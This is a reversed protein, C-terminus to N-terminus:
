IIREGYRPKRPGEDKREKLSEIESELTSGVEKKEIFYHAQQMFAYGKIAFKDVYHKTAKFIEEKTVKEHSDMFKIMKKLSELRNGRYRYGTNSSGPPFLERWSDIWTHVDTPKKKRKGVYKKFIDEGHRRLTVDTPKSGFKKIYGRKELYKIIEEYEMFNEDHIVQLYEFQKEYIFVLLVMNWFPFMREENYMRLYEDNIV